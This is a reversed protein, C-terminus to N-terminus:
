LMRYVLGGNIAFVDSSDQVSPIDVGLLLDINANLAYVGNLVLPFTDGLTTNESEDGLGISVFRTLLEFGLRPLPQFLIGGTLNINMNTPDLAVTILDRGGILAFKDTILYRTDAGLLFGGLFDAENGLGLPVSLRAAIDLNQGDLVLYSARPTLAAFEFDPDIAMSVAAGVELRDSVGYDAAVGLVMSNNKDTVGGSVISIRNYGLAATGEKFGQPLTLPRLALSAPYNTDSFPGVRMAVEGGATGGGMSSGFDDGGEGMGGTMGSASMNAGGKTAFFVVRRDDRDTYGDAGIEGHSVVEIRGEDIGLDVLGQKVSEARTRGLEMNYSPSAIEDTHGIVVITRTEDELMWQAVDHLKEDGENDIASQDLDFYVTSDLTGSSQAFAAAPAMTLCVGLALRVFPTLM